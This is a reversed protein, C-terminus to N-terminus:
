FILDWNNKFIREAYKKEKTKKQKQLSKAVAKSIKAKM